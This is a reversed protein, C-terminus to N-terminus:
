KPSKARVEVRLHLPGLYPEAQGDNYLFLQVKQNEGPAQPAFSAEGEGPAYSYYLGADWASRRLWAIVSTIFRHRGILRKIYYFVM